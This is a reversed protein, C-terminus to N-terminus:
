NYSLKIKTAGNKKYCKLIDKLTELDEVIAGSSLYKNDYPYGYMPHNEYEQEKAKIKKMENADSSFAYEPKIPNYKVKEYYKPNTNIKLILKNIVAEFTTINKWYKDPSEENDMYDYDQFTSLDIKLIKEVQAVMSKDGFGGIQEFFFSLRPPFNDKCKTKVNAEISYDM